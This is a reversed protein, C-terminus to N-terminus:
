FLSQYLHVPYSEAWMFAPIKLIYIKRCPKTTGAFIVTYPCQFQFKQFSRDPLLNECRWPSHLVTFVLTKPNDEGDNGNHSTLNHVVILICTQAIAQTFHQCGIMVM